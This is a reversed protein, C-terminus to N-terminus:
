EGIVLGKKLLEDATLDIIDCIHWRYSYNDSTVVSFQIFENIVIYSKKIYILGVVLIIFGDFRKISGVLTLLWDHDISRLM